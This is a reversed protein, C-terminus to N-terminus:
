IGKTSGLNSPTPLHLPMIPWNSRQEKMGREDSKSAFTGHLALAASKVGPVTASTLLEVCM